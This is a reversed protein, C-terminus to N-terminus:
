KAKGLSVGESPDGMFCPACVIKGDAMTVRPGRGEGGCRSCKYNLDPVCMAM